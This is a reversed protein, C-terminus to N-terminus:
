PMGFFVYRNKGSRKALYMAEDAKKVLTNFRAGIEGQAGGHRM